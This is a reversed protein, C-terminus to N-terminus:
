LLFPVVAITLFNIKAMWGDPDVSLHPDSAAGRKQNGRGRGWSNRRSLLDYLLCTSSPWANKATTPNPDFSFMEAASHM